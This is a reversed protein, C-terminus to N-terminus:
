IRNHKSVIIPNLMGSKNRGLGKGQQWGMKSLMQFGRNEQGIEIPKQQPPKMLPYQQLQQPQAFSPISSTIM